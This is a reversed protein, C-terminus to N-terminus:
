FLPTYVPLGFQLLAYVSLLFILMAYLNIRQM